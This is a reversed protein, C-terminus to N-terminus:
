AIGSEVFLILRRDNYEISKCQQIWANLARDLSSNVVPERSRPMKFVQSQFFMNTTDYKIWELLARNLSYDDAPAKGQQNKLGQHQFPSNTNYKCITLRVVM